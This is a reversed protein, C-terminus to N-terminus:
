QVTVGLMDRTLVEFGGEKLTLIASLCLNEVVRGDTLALTWRRHQQLILDGAMVSVIASPLTAAPIYVAAGDPFRFDLVTEYKADEVIGAPIPQGALLEAQDSM